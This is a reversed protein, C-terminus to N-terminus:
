KDKTETAVKSLADCRLTIKDKIRETLTNHPGKANFSQMKIYNYSFTFKDRHKIHHCWLM